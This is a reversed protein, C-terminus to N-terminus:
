IRKHHPHDERYNKYRFRVQGDDIDVLRSNSMAVRQTYRGVCALVQRPGAFPPTAYVVWDTQRTPALHQRFAPPDRLPELTGFFHLAGADFAADFATLFLRRPARSTFREM